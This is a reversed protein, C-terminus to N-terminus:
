QVEQNRLFKEGYITRMRAFKPVPTGPLSIQFRYKRGDPGGGLDSERDPARARTALRVQIARILEPQAGGTVPGAVATYVQPAMPIPCNYVDTGPVSSCANLDSPAIKDRTFVTLGFKLDVAYEAVLELTDPIENDDPDLEVRVLESRGADGSADASVAAVLTKYTPHAALSRIDYRVRSVPSVLGGTNSGLGLGCTFMGLKNPMLPSSAVQVAANVADYGSIVGYYEHALAVEDFRLMRGARFIKALDKGAALARKMEHSERQLHITFNGGAGPTVQSVPFAENNDFSGGITIRDPSMGNAVSQPLPNAGTISGGNELSIGALKMMGQPGNPVGIGQPCRKPSTQINATSLFAARDIDALLREMGMVASLQASSIRAEHQFFRTANRALLFAAASVLLGATVAILLEVLTFGRADPRRRPFNSRISHCDPSKM